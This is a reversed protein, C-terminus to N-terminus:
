LENDRGLEFAQPLEEKWSKPVLSQFESGGLMLCVDDKFLKLDLRDQWRSISSGQGKISVRQM